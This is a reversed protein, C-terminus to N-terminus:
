ASNLKAKTTKIDDLKEARQIKQEL